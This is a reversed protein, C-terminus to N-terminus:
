RLSFMRTMQKLHWKVKFDDGDNYFINYEIANDHISAQTNPRHNIMHYNIFVLGAGYRRNQYKSFINNFIKNDYFEGINKIRKSNSDYTYNM